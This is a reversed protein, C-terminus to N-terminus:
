RLNDLAERMTSRTAYTRLHYKIDEPWGISLITRFETGSRDDLFTLIEVFYPAESTNFTEAEDIFRTLFALINIKDVGDLIHNKM